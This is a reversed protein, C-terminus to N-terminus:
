ITLKGSLLAIFMSLWLIVFCVPVIYHSQRTEMGGVGKEPYIHTHGFSTELIRIEQKFYKLYESSRHTVLLWATAELIGMLMIIGQALPVGKFQSLALLLISAAVL